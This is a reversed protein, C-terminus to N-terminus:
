VECHQPEAGWDRSPTSMGSGALGYVRMWFGLMQPFFGEPVMFWGDRAALFFHGPQDYIHRESGVPFGDARTGGWVCAIVYKVNPSGEFSNPGDYIIEIRDPQIYNREITALMGDEASPYVGEARLFSLTVLTYVLGFLMLAGTFFILLRALNALETRWTRERGM